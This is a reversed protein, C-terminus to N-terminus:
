SDYLIGQTSLQKVDFEKRYNYYPKDLNINSIYALPSAHSVAWLGRGNFLINPIYIETPFLVYSNLRRTLVKPTLRNIDFHAPTNFCYCQVPTFVERNFYKLKAEMTCIFKSNILLEHQRRLFANNNIKNLVESSAPTLSKWVLERYKIIIKDRATFSIEYM